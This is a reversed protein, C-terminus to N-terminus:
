IETRLNSYYKVMGNNNLDQNAIWKGDVYQMGHRSINHPRNKLTTVPQGLGMQRCAIEALEKDVIITMPKPPNTLPMPRGTPIYKQTSPLYNAKPKVEWRKKNRQQVIDRNIYNWIVSSSKQLAIKIDKLAKGQGHLDDIIKREQDTLM